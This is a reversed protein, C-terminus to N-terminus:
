AKNKLENWYDNNSICGPDPATIDNFYAYARARCGGCIFKHECNACHGKLLSRDRLTKLIPSNHWIDLFKERRVNGLKIPMFVCPQIDGNPEIACYIRGAGCGGIFDALARAKGEFGAGGYFHGVPVGKEREVAIRAFQPATSLAEVKCNNVLKEFLLNLLKEREEPSIDYEIIKKGRGTPVFNFCIFRKVGLNNALKYIEEIQEYNYKTVTTAICTYLGAEVSNKIGEIVKDFIPIGRFANHTEADKGDLSIEVYDVVDKLKNAIDKTILTGNTAISVYLGKDKAYRAIEFFDKRMLPEGGSFAIAVVGSDVLENILKKAEETTLEDKMKEGANEYCHKCKLNCVKTFNWVVLFPANVIQPKTVGYAAIGELVNMLGRKFVTKQLEKKVEEKSIGFSSAGRNVVFSVIMGAIKCKWCLKKGKDILGTYIDIANELRNGCKDKRCVFKLMRRSIPNGVWKEVSKIAIDIESPM